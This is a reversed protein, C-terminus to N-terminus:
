LRPSRWTGGRVVQEGRRGETCTRACNRQRIKQFFNANTLLKLQKGVALPQLELANNRWLILDYLRPKSLETKSYYLDEPDDNLHELATTPPLQRGCLYDRPVAIPLNGLSQNLSLDALQMTLEGVTLASAKQTPTLASFTSASVIHDFSLIRYETLDRTMGALRPVYRQPKPRDEVRTPAPWQVVEEEESSDEDQRQFLRAFFGPKKKKDITDDSM